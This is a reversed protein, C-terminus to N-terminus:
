KVIVLVGKSPEHGEILLDFLSSEDAVEWVGEEDCELSARPRYDGSDVPNMIHYSPRFTLVQNPLIHPAM